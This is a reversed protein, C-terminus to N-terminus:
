AESEQLFAEFAILGDDILIQTGVEVDGPLGEYTVAVIEKNGVVDRTTLTFIDGDELEIRGDEFTKIRIEPGRTDLMIGCAVGLKARTEKVMDMRVKQEAHSGHSFNLRAVNMGAKMLKEVMGPKDTAPGLTCIIKTRRIM